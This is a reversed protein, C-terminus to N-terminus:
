RCRFRHKAATTSTAKTAAHAADVEGLREGNTGKGDDDEEAGAEGVGLVAGEGGRRGSAQTLPVRAESLSACRM